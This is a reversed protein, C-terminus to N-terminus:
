KHKKVQSSPNKETSDDMIMRINSLMEQCEANDEGCYTRVDRVFARLQAMTPNKPLMAISQYPSKLQFDQVLNDKIRINSLVIEACRRKEDDPASLFASAMSNAELFVNRVQEFTTKEEIPDTGLKSLQAEIDVQENKLSTMNREYVDEPTDKRRALTDQQDQIEALRKALSKRIAESSQSDNRHKNESARAALELRPIDVVLKQLINSLLIYAEEAKLHKSRQTCNGKGNTCYYYVYKERKITATLFCGCTDCTMYGRLPFDHKQRRSKNKGLLIDNAQDFLIKYILPEYAGQYHIGDRVMVGYYFPNTIIRHIKSKNLGRGNTSHFGEDYIIKKIEKLSYNGSAYLRFIKQVVPATKSNVVITQNAKNNAYGFPAMNPWGGKELKTKNGRMVNQRLDRIYQNAMGFEVSAILANDNPNYDRDPTKIQAIIGQQLLWKIKGEDVPNRALRDLKWVLIIIGPHKEVFNMMEAFVPRGPAKATMSERFIKEITLNSREALRKMEVEQSDMSLIQHNADDTSKRCYIIATM